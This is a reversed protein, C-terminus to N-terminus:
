TERDIVKDFNDLDCHACKIKEGYSELYGTNNCWDCNDMLIEHMDFESIAPIIIFRYLKVSTKPSVAIGFNRGNPVDVVNESEV